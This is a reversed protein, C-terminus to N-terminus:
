RSYNNKSSLGHIVFSPAAPQKVMPRNCLNCTPPETRLHSVLMDKREAGCSVCKYDFVPM